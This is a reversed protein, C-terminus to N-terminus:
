YLVMNYAEEDLHKNEAEQHAKAEPSDPNALGSFQNLLDEFQQRPDESTGLNLKNLGENSAAMERHLDRVVSDEHTLEEDQEDPLQSLRKMEGLSESVEIGRRLLDSQQEKTLRSPKTKENPSDKIPSSFHRIHNSQYIIPSSHHIFGSQLVRLAFRRGQLSM